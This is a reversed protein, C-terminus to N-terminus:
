GGNGDTGRLRHARAVIERITEQDNSQIAVAFGDGTSTVRAEVGSPVLPCNPMEPVSHGLAANRALHCDIVRQLWEATMGPVARFTVVAGVERREPSRLPAGGSVVELGKVSVIDEAHIFPSMDRDDPSIGVCAQVEAQRLAVSGARHAAAHKRHKEAERLHTATPNTVSTWCLDYAEIPLRASGGRCSRSVAANPNYQAAHVDATKGHAQAEREHQAASMEHPAAGPTTTACGSAAIIAILARRIMPYEEEKVIM